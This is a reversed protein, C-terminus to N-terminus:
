AALRVAEATWTLPGDVDCAEAEERTAPRSDPARYFPLFPVRIGLERLGMVGIRCGGPGRDNAWHEFNQFEFVTAEGGNMVVRRRWGESNRFQEIAHRLQDRKKDNTTM